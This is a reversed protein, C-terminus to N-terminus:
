DTEKWIWKEHRVKLQVDCPDVSPDIKNLIYSM